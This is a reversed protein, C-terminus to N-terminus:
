RSHTVQAVQASHLRWRQRQPGSLNGLQAGRHICGLLVAAGVRVHAGPQGLVSERRELHSVGRMRQSGKVGGEGGWVKCM